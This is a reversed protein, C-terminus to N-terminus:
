PAAAEGVQPRAGSMRLGANAAGARRGPMRRQFVVGLTEGIWSFGVPLARRSEVM